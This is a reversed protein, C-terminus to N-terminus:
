EAGNHTFQLRIPPLDPERGTRAHAMHRLFRRRPRCAQQFGHQCRIGFARRQERFRIARSIRPPNSFDMFPQNRDASVTRRRTRRRHKGPKTKISRRLRPRQRFKRTTPAHTHRERACQKQFRIQQQQVFRRVMQIQFRCKPQFAPERPKRPRRDHDAMITPQQFAAHIRNRM